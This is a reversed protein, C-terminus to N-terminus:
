AKEKRESAELLQVAMRPNTMLLREWLLRCKEQRSLGAISAKITRSTKM